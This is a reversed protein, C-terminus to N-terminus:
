IVQLRGDDKFGVPTAPAGCQKLGWAFFARIPQGSNWQIRDPHALSPFEKGKVTFEGIAVTYTKQPNLVEWQNASKNFVYAQTVQGRKGDMTVAIGSGHLMGPHPNRNKVCEASKQLAALIEAGSVPLRVVSDTFPMLAKLDQDTFTGPDINSRTEPSRVFAIDSGSIARMADATFEAVPDPHYENGNCDYPTTITALSKPVGLIANKIATSVPDAPFSFPNVLINSQPIVRGTPDFLVDAVGMYQANKGGQVILVPDGAPGSIYNVGPTIGNVVDHSHGGVIVDIGPVTQALKRDEELGMHSLVIIKNIGRAQLQNVQARVVAMTKTWDMPTEGNLKASSSLVDMLEPTTVGILGYTNQGSTIIMPGNHLKQTRLSEALPSNQPINLNSLLTPFQASQLGLAYNLSGPDFEHNGTVVAHYNLLNLLMVNLLWEDPEKGVNNDGGNLRLVDRGEAQGLESFYRFGSTLYPLAKFKEHPDNNYVIRLANAM